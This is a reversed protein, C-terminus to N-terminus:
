SIWSEYIIKRCKRDGPGIQTADIDAHHHVM